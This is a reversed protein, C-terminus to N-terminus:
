RLYIPNSLIWTREAGHAERYAEVRYVGPEDIRHYLGRGIERGDRLVRVSAAAPLAV